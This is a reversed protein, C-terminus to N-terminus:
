TWLRLAMWSGRRREYKVNWGSVFETLEVKSIILIYASLSCKEHDRRDAGQDLDGDNTLPIISTVEWSADGRRRQAEKGEEGYGQKM